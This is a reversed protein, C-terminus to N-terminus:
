MWGFITIAAFATLGLCIGVGLFTNRTLYNRLKKESGHLIIVTMVVSSFIIASLLTLLSYGVFQKINSQFLLIVLDSFFIITLYPMLVSLPLATEYSNGKPTIKFKFPSKRSMDTIAYFIGITVWPWKTLTFMMSEWSFISIKQPRTYGKKKVIYLFIMLPIDLISIRWLFQLFDVNAFPIKFIVAIPPILLGLIATISLLPYWMLSYLLTLKKKFPIKGLIRGRWRFLIVMLSRSWQMEQTVGDVFNRPGDGHAEAMIEFVGKWGANSIISSTSYDEALEPGIGGAQKLAVTRVAYHSGVCIPSYGDNYGMHVVGHVCAESAMRGRAYWSSEAGRDNVSPCAVYGVRHDTFCQSIIRLYSPAPVHDVDFQCVIDYNQYGWKDYFYMLNGEKCRTRKPWEVRNYEAIGKRCSIFVGHDRCWNTTAEDPDEDALWVDYPFPYDQALCASLTKAAIDLPESPVKTVIMAARFRTLRDNPKIIKAHTAFYFLWLNALTIHVFVLTNIWYQIVGTGHSPQLWWIWFNLQFALWLFFIGFLSFKEKKNFAGILKM